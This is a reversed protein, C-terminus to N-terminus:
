PLAIPLQRAYTCRNLAGLTDKPGQQIEPLPTHVEACTTPQTNQRGTQTGNDKGFPLYPVVTCLAQPHGFIPETAHKSSPSSSKKPPPDHELFLAHHAHLARM